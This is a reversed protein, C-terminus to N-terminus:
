AIGPKPPLPQRGHSLRTMYAEWLGGGTKADHHALALMAADPSSYVDNLIVALRILQDPALASWRTFDRVYVADAWLLQRFPRNPDGSNLAPKFARGAMGNFTHFLFGRERMCADVDAFLPQGAYMPVFEVEAEVAVVRELLRTAGRLIDLEAGQVDMKIYDAETAEPIDDLRRTQVRESKVPTMVEALNNFLRLLPTNPTYLSSTAPFNTTHFDREAGDGICCPLYRRNRGARANLRACAEEVPEFGIVRAADSKLLARYATGENEVAMAGADIITIPPCSRGLMELLSFPGSHGPAQPHHQM